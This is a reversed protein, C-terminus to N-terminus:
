QWGIRWVTPDQLERWHLVSLARTLIAEIEIMETPTGDEDRVWDLVIFHKQRDVPRAATWKSGVIKKRNVPNRAEAPSVHSGIVV